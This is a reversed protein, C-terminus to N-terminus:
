YTNNKKSKTVSEAELWVWGSRRLKKKPLVRSCSEDYELERERRM